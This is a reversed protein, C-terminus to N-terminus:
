QNLPGLSYMTDIKLIEDLSLSRDLADKCVTLDKFIEKNLLDLLLFMFIIGSRRQISLLCSVREMLMLVLCIILLLIFIFCKDKKTEDGMTPFYDGGEPSFEVGDGDVRTCDLADKELKLDFSQVLDFSRVLGFSQVLDFNQVFNLSWVLDNVNYASYYHADDQDDVDDVNNASGEVDNARKGIVTLDVNKMIVEDPTPNPLCTVEAALITTHNTLLNYWSANLGFHVFVVDRINFLEACQFCLKSLDDSTFGETLSEDTVRSDLIRWALFWNPIVCKLM